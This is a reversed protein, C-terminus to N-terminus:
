IRLSQVKPRALPINYKVLIVLYMSVENSIDLSALLCYAIVATVTVCAFQVYFRKFTAAVTEKLNAATFQEFFQQLKNM